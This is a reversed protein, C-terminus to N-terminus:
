ILIRDEKKIGITVRKVVSFTEEIRFIASDHISGPPNFLGYPLPNAHVPSISVDRPFQVPLPRFREQRALKGRTYETEHGRFHSVNSTFAFGQSDVRRNKTAVVRLKIRREGSFDKKGSSLLSNSALEEREEM